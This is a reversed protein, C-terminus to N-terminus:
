CVVLWNEKVNDDTAQYFRHLAHVQRDKLQMNQGPSKLKFM